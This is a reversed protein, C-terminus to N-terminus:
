GPDVSTTMLETKLSGVASVHSGYGPKVTVFPVAPVKCYPDAYLRAFVNTLNVVVHAGPPLRQCGQPDTFVTATQLETAFVVIQGKAPGATRRPDAARAPAATAALLLGTALPAALRHM